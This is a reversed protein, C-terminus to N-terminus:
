CTAWATPSPTRRTMSLSSCCPRPRGTGVAVQKGTLRGVAECWDAPTDREIVGHVLLGPAGAVTVEEEAFSYQELYRKVVIARLGEPSAKPLRLRYLTSKRTTPNKRKRASM